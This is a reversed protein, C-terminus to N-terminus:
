ASEQSPRHHKTPDYDEKKKWIALTAAAIRRAITLRALHSATGTAVLRDFHERLPNHRALVTTAAGKFIAKLLPQRNLNLGRTQVSTQVHQWPSDSSVRKWQSSARTVIGLGSYSWFQRTKRFRHPTVVLAVIQAARIDGLGPVTKLREVEPYKKAEERLWSEAQELGKTTADLHAALWEARRRYAPPLKCVWTKRCDPNYITTDLEPVGRSRLLSRLRNKARTQEKVAVLYARVAERLPRYQTTPKFVYTGQGRVRILEALAWADDADSKRGRHEKPQVVVLEKVHPSLVEVLWEALQGEEICMYKDGPVGKLFDILVKTNTDLIQQRIRKGSPGMVAVTCSEAHTDIGIYRDM